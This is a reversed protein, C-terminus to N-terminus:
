EQVDDFERDLCMPSLFESYEIQGTSTPQSEGEIGTNDFSRSLLM